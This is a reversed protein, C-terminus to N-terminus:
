EEGDLWHGLREVVLQAALDFCLVRTNGDDTFIYDATGSEGLGLGADDLPVWVSLLWRGYKDDTAPKYSQVYVFRDLTLARVRDRAAQAVARIMPDPDSLEDTNFPRGNSGVLRLGKEPNSWLGGFGLDILPFVTDGDIGFYVLARHVAGVFPISAHQFPPAVHM